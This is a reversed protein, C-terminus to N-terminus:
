AASSTNWPLQAKRLFDAMQDPTVPPSFLYGQGRSCGLAQLLAVQEISEVGEAVVDMNLNHAMDMISHIMAAYRRRAGIDSVFSRDIKLGDLPFQHVVSLSSHGTGFDDLFTRIGANRLDQLVGVVHKGCGLLATETIELILSEPPLTTRRLAEIVAPFFRADELQLGSVNVSVTMPQAAPFQAKWSVLHRCADELIWLGLPDIFGTEEAIGIFDIPQVLGRSQHQWRVLAEASRLEGTLLSVVPQFYTRLEKREIAKRLENELNLRAMAEDHMSADFVIYCGRGAAKARYMANDADRVMDEAHTTGPDSIAIGISGSMHVERGGLDCPTDFAGLIRQAISEADSRHKLGTLLLCFEDGGLRAATSGVPGSDDMDSNSQYVLDTARLTSRLREAMVKLLRDGAHHGLSDNIVKFRDFDVFLVAVLSDTARRSYELARSLRDHFLTRNPLGTLDDHSAARRLEYTRARVIAELEEVRHHDQQQALALEATREAVAHELEIIKLEARRALTWKATGAIALRKVEVADFPKKLVLLRDSDGGLADIEQWPHDSHATCIVVQIEPDVRWLERITQLGDWGPPMRMDIFALAFPNGSDLAAKAIAVGQHGQMASVLTFEPLNSSPPEAAAKGMAAARLASLNGSARAPMLVKQFDQHIEPTDDILLIRRNEFPGQTM